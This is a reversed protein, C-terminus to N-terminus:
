SKRKGGFEGKGICILMASVDWHLMIRQNTLDFYKRVGLTNM